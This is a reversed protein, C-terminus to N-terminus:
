DKYYIRCGWQEVYALGRFEEESEYLEAYGEKLKNGKSFSFAGEHEAQAGLGILAADRGGTCVTKKGM